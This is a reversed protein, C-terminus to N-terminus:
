LMWTLTQIEIQIFIYLHDQFLLSTLRLAVPSIVTIFLLLFFVIYICNSYLEERTHQMPYIFLHLHLWIIICAKMANQIHILYVTHMLCNSFPILNVNYMSILQLATLMLMRNRNSYVHFLIIPNSPKIGRMFWLNFILLNGKFEVVFSRQHYLRFNCIHMFDATFNVSCWLHQASLSGYSLWSHSFSLLFFTERFSQTSIFLWKVIVAHWPM